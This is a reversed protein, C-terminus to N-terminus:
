IRLTAVEMGFMNKHRVSEIFHCLSTLEWVLVWNALLDLFAVFWLDSNRVDRIALFIVCLGCLIVLLAIRLGKMELLIM